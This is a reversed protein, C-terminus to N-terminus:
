KPERHRPGILEPKVRYYTTFRPDGENMTRVLGNLEKIAGMIKEHEDSNNELQRYITDIKQVQPCTAIRKDIGANVRDITAFGGSGLLGVAATIIMWVNLKKRRVPTM